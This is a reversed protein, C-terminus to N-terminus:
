ETEKTEEENHLFVWQKDGGPCGGKEIHDFMVAPLCRYKYRKGKSVAVFTFVELDNVWKVEKVVELAEEELFYALFLTKSIVSWFLFQKSATIAIYDVKGLHACNVCVSVILTEIKVFLTISNIVSSYLFGFVEEPDPVRRFVGKPKAASLYRLEIKSKTFRVIEGDWYLWEIDEVDVRSEFSDIDMLLPSILEGEIEPKRYEELSCDEFNAVSMKKDDTELFIICKAVCHVAKITKQSSYRISGIYSCVDSNSEKKLHYKYLKLNNDGRVLIITASCKRPVQVPQSFVQYIHGTIDPIGIKLRNKMEAAIIDIKDRELEACSFNESNPVFSAIFKKEEEFFSFDMQPISKSESILEQATLSLLGRLKAQNDLVAAVIEEAKKNTDEFESLKDRIEDFVINKALEFVQDLTRKMEAIESKNRQVITSITNQKARAPKELGDFKALQEFIAKRVAKARNEILDLNHNFHTDICRICILVDCDSCYKDFIHKHDNCSLAPRGDIDRIEHGKRCHSVICSECFNFPYTQESLGKELSGSEHKYECTACNFISKDPFSVECVSCFNRGNECAM